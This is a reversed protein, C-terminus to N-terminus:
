NSSKINMKINHLRKIFINIIQNRRKDIAFYIIYSISISILIVSLFTFKNGYNILMPSMIIIVPYHILYLPYSIDGLLKGISPHIFPTNIRNALYLFLPATLFIFDTDKLSLVLVIIGYLIILFIPVRKKSSILFGLVWCILMFPIRSYFFSFVAILVYPLILINALIGDKKAVM